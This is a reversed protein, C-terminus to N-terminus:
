GAAIRALLAAVADRVNARVDTVGAARLFRESRQGGGVAVFPVDAVAASRADSETDGVYGAAALARLYGAKGAAPDSPDVVGVDDVDLALRAIQDRVASADRRATLVVPSLGAARVAALAPPAEPLVPDRALWAADEVRSVWATVAADVVAAPLGQALLADRTTAGERKAAWLADPDVGPAELEELVAVTLEVQRPRCDLLTGDLDLALVGGDSM